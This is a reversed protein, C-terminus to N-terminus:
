LNYRLYDQTHQELWVIFPAACLYMEGASAIAHEARVLEILVKLSTVAADRMGCGDRAMVRIVCM